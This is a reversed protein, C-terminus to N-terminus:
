YTTSKGRIIQFKGTVKGAVVVSTGVLIIGNFVSNLGAAFTTPGVWYM